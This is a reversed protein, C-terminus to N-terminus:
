DAWDTTPEDRLEARERVREPMVTYITPNSTLGTLALDDINRQLMGTSLPRRTLNDLSLSQGHGRLAQIASVSSV